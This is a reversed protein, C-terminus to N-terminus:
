FKRSYGPFEAGDGHKNNNICINRVSKYTDRDNSIGTAVHDLVNTQPREKAPITSEFEAPPM